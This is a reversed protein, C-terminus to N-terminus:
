LWLRLFHGTLSLKERSCKNLVFTIIATKMQVRCCRAVAESVEVGSGTWELTKELKM